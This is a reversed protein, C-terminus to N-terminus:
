GGAASTVGLPTAPVTGGTKRDLSRAHELTERQIALSETLVGLTRKSVALQERQTSTSIQLIRRQSRLLAPVDPFARLLRAFGDGALGADALARLSSLSRRLDSRDLTTAIFTAADVGEGAREALAPLQDVSDALTGTTRRLRRRAGRGGLPATAALLPELGRTVRALRGDAAVVGARTTRIESRTGELSVLVAILTALMGVLLLAGLVVGVRAAPSVVLVVPERDRPV